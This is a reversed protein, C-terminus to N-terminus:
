GRVRKRGELCRGYRVREMRGRKRGRCIELKGMKKGRDMKGMKGRHMNLVKNIVIEM